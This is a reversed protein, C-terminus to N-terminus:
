TNVDSTNSNDKEDKVADKPKQFFKKILYSVFAGIAIMSLKKWDLMLVGADLSEQIAVLVPALIALLAGQIFDKLSLSLFKSDKM